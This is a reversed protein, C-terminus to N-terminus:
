VRGCMDGPGLVKRESGLICALNLRRYEKGEKKGPEM